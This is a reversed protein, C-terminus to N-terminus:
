TRRWKKDADVDTFEDAVTVTLACGAAHSRAHSDIDVHTDAADVDSADISIDANPPYIPRSHVDSELQM